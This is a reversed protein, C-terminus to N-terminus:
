IKQGARSNADTGSRSSGPCPWSGAQRETKGGDYQLPCAPFVAPAGHPQWGLATAQQRVFHRM